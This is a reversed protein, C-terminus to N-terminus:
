LLKHFDDYTLSLLTEDKALPTLTIEKAMWPLPIFRNAEEASQFEIEARVLGEYQERYVRLAIRPTESMTYNDRVVYDATTRSIGEFEEKTISIKESERILDTKSVKRELEFVEGVSQIRVVIGNKRYLYFRKQSWHEKGTLDPLQKVLFKRTITQM